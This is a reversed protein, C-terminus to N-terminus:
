DRVSPVRGTHSSDRQSRHLAYPTRGGFSQPDGNQVFRSSTESPALPASAEAPQFWPAFLSLMCLALFLLTQGCIKFRM